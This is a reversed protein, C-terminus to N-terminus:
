CHCTATLINFKDQISQEEIFPFSKNTLCVHYKVMDNYQLNLCHNEANKIIQGTSSTVSSPTASKFNWWIPTM